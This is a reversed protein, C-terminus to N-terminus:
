VNTPYTNSQLVASPDDTRLVFPVTITGNNPFIIGSIVRNLFIDPYAWFEHM